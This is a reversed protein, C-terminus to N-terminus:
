SPARGGGHGLRFGTARGPDRGEKGGESWVRSRMRSIKRGWGKELKVRGGTGTGRRRKLGRRREGLHGRCAETSGRQRQGPGRGNQEMYTSFKWSRTRGVLVM